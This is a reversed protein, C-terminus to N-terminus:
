RIRRRRCAKDRHDPMTRKLDSFIFRPVRSDYLVSVWVIPSKGLMFDFSSYMQSSPYWGVCLRRLLVWILLSFKVPASSSTEIHDKSPLEVSCASPPLESQKSLGTDM